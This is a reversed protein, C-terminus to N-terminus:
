TKEKEIEEAEQTLREELMMRYENFHGKRATYLGYMGSQTMVRRKCYIKIELNTHAGEYIVAIAPYSVGSGDGLEVGSIMDNPDFERTFDPLYDLAVVVDFPVATGDAVSFKICLSLWDNKEKNPEEFWYKDLVLNCALLSDKFVNLSSAMQLVLRM